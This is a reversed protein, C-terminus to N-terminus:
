FKWTWITNNSNNVLAVEDATAAGQLYLSLPLYKLITMFDCDAHDMSSYLSM